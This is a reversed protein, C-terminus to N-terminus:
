KGYLAVRCFTPAWAAHKGTQAYEKAMIAGELQLWEPSAFELLHQQDMNDWNIQVLDEGKFTYRLVPAQMKNGYRDQMPAKLTVVAVWLSDMKGTAKLVKFAGEIDGATTLIFNNGSTIVTHSIVLDLKLKGEIMSATASEVNHAERVEGMANNLTDLPSPAPPTPAQSAQVPAQPKPQGECTMGIGGIICLAMFAAFTWGCGKLVKKGTSSKGDEAMPEEEHCPALGRLWRPNMTENLTM